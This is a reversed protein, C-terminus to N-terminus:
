LWWAPTQSPCRGPPLRFGKLFIKIFLGQWKNVM